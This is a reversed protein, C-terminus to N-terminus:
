MANLAFLAEPILNPLDEAILGPKGFARAALGHVYVGAAAASKGAMGQALFGGIIGALVDGSGATALLAPANSNVVAWGDPTAVVTDSGKFVVIAGSRRAAKRAMDIKSGFIDPFLRAFEGAHPTLIVARNPRAKIALFLADTDGLFSILADADLVAAVGSALVALVNQHTAPGIGTAPGIITANFPRDSLIAALQDASNIEGLMISTLHAAHIRLADQIGLLTVLGAGVRLAALAALRSAGTNLEGGSIVACHGNDYKHDEDKRCPLSWLEPMNECCDPAITKLVVEPIGIMRVIVKGCRLRGPQLLHGPKKRFFTITLDAQVAVGRIAGNEGDLGSPVDVSVVPVDSNAIATVLQALPGTIDRDLGAGLLADVILEAGTLVEPAAKVVEGSWRTANVGADGSPASRGGFLAVRVVWGLDSLQRAVVFGDGGNNGPGCLVLVSCPRYSALIEDTVARGANEMLELAPIGAAVAMADAQSMQRPTLLESGRSLNTKCRRMDM